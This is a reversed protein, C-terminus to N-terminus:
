HYDMMQVRLEQLWSTEPLYVTSGSAPTDFVVTVIFHLGSASFSCHRSENILVLM